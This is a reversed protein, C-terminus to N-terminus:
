KTVHAVIRKAISRFIERAEKRQDPTGANADWLPRGDRQSSAWLSGFDKVQGLQITTPALAPDVDQLVSVVDSQIQKEIRPLYKAYDLSPKSGYVRFRQPIYGLFVPRGPLLYLDDPALEVITQWERIWTTLTHGLTKLARISFLDCAAPVIFYDCDLLM